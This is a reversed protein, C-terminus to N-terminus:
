ISQNLKKFTVPGLDRYIGIYTGILLSFFDSFYNKNLFHVYLFKCNIFLDLLYM